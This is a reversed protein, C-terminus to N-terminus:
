APLRRGALSRAPAVVQTTPTPQAQVRAGASSCRSSTPSTKRAKAAPQLTDFAARGAHQRLVPLVPLLRLWRSRGRAQQYREWDSGFEDYKKRKEPDSLVEYAENIEKFKAEAERDNPNLDPHFKRALKRFASKIEKETAGKKVGLVNYYDKYQM